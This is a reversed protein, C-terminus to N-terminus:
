LEALDISWWSMHRLFNSGNHNNPSKFQWKRSRPWSVIFSFYLICLFVFWLPLLFMFRTIFSKNAKFINNTSFKMTLNTKKKQDKYCRMSPLHIRNGWWWNQSKLKCLAYKWWRLGGMCLILIFGKEIICRM